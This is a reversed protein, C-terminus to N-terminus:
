GDGVQVEHTAPGLISRTVIQVVTGYGSNMDGRGLLLVMAGPGGPIVIQKSDQSSNQSRERANVLIRCKLSSVCYNTQGMCVGPSPTVQLVSRITQSLEM